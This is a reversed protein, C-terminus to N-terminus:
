FRGSRQYVEIIRQTDAQVKAKSRSDREKSQVEQKLQEDKLRHNGEFALRDIVAAEVVTVVVHGGM